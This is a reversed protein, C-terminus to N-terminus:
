KTLISYIISAITSAAFVLIAGILYPMLSKKYEAKEEASGFMYKIGIIVLVVVSVISGITSLATIIKNGLNNADQNTVPTGTLDEVGFAFISNPLIIQIVFIMLLILALIYLIKKLKNM